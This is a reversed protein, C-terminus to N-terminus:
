RRAIAIAYVALLRRIGDTVHQCSLTAGSINRIDRGLQVPDGHARGIFQSRWAANRVEAGYAERYELIEVQRVKGDATLAVAYNILDHKGIVADVFFYGDAAKWARLAGAFYRTGTQREVAAIDAASLELPAPMLSQGPFMLEQAQALSLYVLAQAPQVAALAAVPLFVIRSPTFM